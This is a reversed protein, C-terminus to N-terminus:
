MASVSNVIYVARACWGLYTKKPVSWAIYSCLVGLGTYGVCNFHVKVDTLLVFCNYAYVIKIVALIQITVFNLIQSFIIVRILSTKCLIVIKVIKSFFFVIRWTISPSIKAVTFSFM